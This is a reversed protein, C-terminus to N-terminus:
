GGGFIREVYGPGQSTVFWVLSATLILTAACMAAIWLKGLPGRPTDAGLYARNRQLLIFGVYAAPLFLGCVVNTPVAVWVAIKGWVYPAFVAPTPLLTMLRYRWSGVELGFLEVGVFGACLMQLTISSLAMGLIGLNFVVRGATPGVAASLARAAEVPQLRSAEFAGDMYITNATAIVMLSTALTYPLLMGGLLDFRALRRHERGWGRALLTYPYLFLMNVGVAAALGSLVVVGGVVGNREAPVQFTLFGRALAGWDSIGTRAVVWGFCLVISWVMYKLVREYGRVMAPSTGYLMSLGVAWALVFWSTWQPQLGPLGVVEGMDVLVASALTYQPFHWIISSVLAGLAWAYALPAGAFHRMAEFPRLGTSLTQHAVASLMVVGLLMALPAVWLLQYGFVAGAFLSAAATGGGLTMASQLYGPGGLGLYGLARALPPRAELEALRARERALSEPSPPHALRLGERWTDREASM